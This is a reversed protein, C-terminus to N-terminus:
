AARKRKMWMVVFPSAVFISSYTGVVVGVMLALAFGHIRGGGAVFLVLVAFLTTASTLLTRSLTQNISSNVLEPWPTSRSARRNERIRDYVVITDNLSYGVITLLAAVTEIDIKVDALNLKDLLCIAGVTIGVDHALAAVAGAGFAVNFEFRAIIYLFIAGLSFLVAQFAQGQLEQSVATGISEVSLFEMKGGVEAAAALWARKLTEVGGKEGSGEQVLPTVISFKKSRGFTVSEFANM